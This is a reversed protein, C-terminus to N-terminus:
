KYKYYKISEKVIKEIQNEAVKRGFIPFRGLHPLRLLTITKGNYNLRRIDSKYDGWGTPLPTKEKEVFGLASLIELVSRTTTNDICVLLQLSDINQLIIKSWLQKGFSIAENKNKLNKISASRFPIFYGVLVSNVFEDLSIVRHIKSHIETLFKKIQPQVKSRANEAQIAFGSESSFNVENTYDVDKRFAPNLTVIIIGNNVRINKKKCNLLRWSETYTNKSYFEEIESELEKEMKM